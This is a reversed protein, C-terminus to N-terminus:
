LQRSSNWRGLFCGPVSCIDEKIMPENKATTRRKKRSVIPRYKGAFIKGHHAGEQSNIVQCCFRTIWLPVALSLSKILYEEQAESVVDGFISLAPIGEQLGKPKRVIQFNVSQCVLCRESMDKASM